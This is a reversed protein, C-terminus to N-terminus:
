TALQGSIAQQVQDPVRWLGLFGRQPIPEALPRVDALEWHHSGAAAWPSCSCFLATSDTEHCGALQAVATVAGFPILTTRRTLPEARAAPDDLTATWRRWAAQVLPSREGAPDWRGRSGAHIFLPGRYRIPRSRNETLKGGHVVAFAWPQRITLARAPVSSARERRDAENGPTGNGPLIGLRRCCLICRPQSLRSLVGPMTWEAWRGCAAELVPWPGGRLGEVADEDDPDVAGRPIAHLRNWSAATTLWWHGLNSDVPYATM